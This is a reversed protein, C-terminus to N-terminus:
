FENKKRAINPFIFITISVPIKEVNTRLHATHETEDNASKVMNVKQPGYGKYKQALFFLPNNQYFLTYKGLRLIPISISLYMPKIYSREAENTTERGEGNQRRKM